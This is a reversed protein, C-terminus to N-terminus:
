KAAPEASPEASPAPKKAHSKKKAAPKAAPSQNGNPTTVEKEVSAVSSSRLRDRMAQLGRIQRDLLEDASATSVFLVPASELLQSRLDAVPRGTIVSMEACLDDITMFKPPAEVIPSLLTEAQAEAPRELTATTMPDSLLTSTESIVESKTSECWVEIGAFWISVKSVGLSLYARSKLWYADDILHDVDSPQKVTILLQGDFALLVIAGEPVPYVERFQALAVANMLRRDSNTIPLFSNM